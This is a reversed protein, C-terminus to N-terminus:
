GWVQQGSAYLSFLPSFWRSPVESLPWTGATYLLLIGEQLCLKADAFIISTGIQRAKNLMHIWPQLWSNHKTTILTNLSTPGQGQSRPFTCAVTCCLTPSAQNSKATTLLCNTSFNAPQDTFVFLVLQTHADLTANLHDETHGWHTSISDHALSQKYVYHGAGLFKPGLHWIGRFWRWCKHRSYSLKTYPLLTQPITNTPM